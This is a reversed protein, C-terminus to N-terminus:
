IKYRGVRSLDYRRPDFFIRKLLQKANSTTPPDGPRLKM